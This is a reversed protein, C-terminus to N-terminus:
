MKLALLLDTWISIGWVDFDGDMTRLSRLARETPERAPPPGQLLATFHELLERWGQEPSEEQPVWEARGADYQLSCGWDQLFRLYRRGFAPHLAAIATLLSCPLARCFAPLARGDGLLWRLALPQAEGGGTAASAALLEALPLWSVPEGGGVSVARRLVEECAARREPLEEPGRLREELRQRLIQARTESLAAPDVRSGSDRLLLVGAAAKVRVARGLSAPIAAGGGEGRTRYWAAARHFAAASAAPNCLLAESLMEEGRGLEEFRLRRYQPLPHGRPGAGRSLLHLRLADQASAVEELRRSLQELYRAWQFARRVEAEDWDGAWPSRAVALVEAFRALNELLAEM